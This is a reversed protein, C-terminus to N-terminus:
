SREIYIKKEVSTERLPKLTSWKLLDEIKEKAKEVTWKNPGFTVSNNGRCVM